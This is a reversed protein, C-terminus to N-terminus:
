VKKNLFINNSFGLHEKSYNFLEMSVKEKAKEVANNILENAFEEPNEKINQVETYKNLLDNSLKKQREATFSSEILIGLTRKAPEEDYSEENKFEDTQYHNKLFKNINNTANSREELLITEYILNYFEDLKDKQGNIIDKYVNDAMERVEEAKKNQAISLSKTLELINNIRWGKIKTM